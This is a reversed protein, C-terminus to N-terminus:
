SMFAPSTVPTHATSASRANSRGHGVTRNRNLPSSSSPLGFDRGCMSRAAWSQRAASTSSGPTPQSTLVSRLPTPIKVTVVCPTSAWAPLLGVSPALATWASASITWWSVRSASWSLPVVILTPVILPPVARLTMAPCALQRM